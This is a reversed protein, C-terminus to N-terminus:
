PLVEAGRPWLAVTRAFWGRARFAAALRRSWAASPALAFLASGSGCLLAALAGAARLGAVAEALVPHSGTVAAELANGCARALARRDRREVARVAASVDPQSGAGEGLRDFAAYADATAIGFPPRVVLAPWAPLPPLPRVREGRGTALATGGTLFFPVDSGLRAAVQALVEGGVGWLASLATLVAAADASGGGLGSAVPIRKRIAIAVRPERGVAAGLEEAARWALNGPGQPVGPHACRVSLEGAPRVAVRDFLSLAQVVTEVRHYGDSGRAGVALVLNAKAPVRAVIGEM